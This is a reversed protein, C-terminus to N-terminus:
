YRRSVKNVCKVPVPRDPHFGEDHHLNCSAKKRDSSWTKCHSCDACRDGSKIQTM